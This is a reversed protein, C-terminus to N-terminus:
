TYAATASGHLVCSYGHAIVVWRRFLLAHRLHPVLYKVSLARPVAIPPLMEGKSNPDLRELADSIGQRMIYVRYPARGGVDNGYSDGAIPM